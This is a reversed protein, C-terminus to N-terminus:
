DLEEEEAEENIWTIKIAVQGEEENADYKIKYQLDKDDPIEVSIGEVELNGKILKAFLDKLAEYCEKKSGIFKEQYNMQM